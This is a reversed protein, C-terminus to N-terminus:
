VRKDGAPPVEELHQLDMDGKGQLTEEAVKVDRELKSGSNKVKFAWISQNFIDDMEELTKGCSEPFLLFVHVIAACCFTGFILFMKLKEDAVSDLIM